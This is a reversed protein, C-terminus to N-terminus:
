TFFVKISFCTFFVNNKNKQFFSPPDIHSHRTRWQGSVMGTHKILRSSHPSVVHIDFCPPSLPPPRDTPLALRFKIRAMQNAQPTTALLQRPFFVWLKQCTTSPQDNNQRRGLILKSFTQVDLVRIEILKAEGKPKGGRRFKWRHVFSIISSSDSMPINMSFYFLFVLIILPLKPQWFALWFPLFYGLCLLLSVFLNEKLNKKRKEGTVLFNYSDRLLSDKENFIFLRLFDRLKRKHSVFIRTLFIKFTARPTIDQNEETEKLWLFTAM